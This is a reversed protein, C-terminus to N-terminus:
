LLPVHYLLSSTQYYDGWDEPCLVPWAKTCSGLNTWSFLGNQQIASFKKGSADARQRLYCNQAVCTLRFHVKQGRSGHNQVFKQQCITQILVFFSLLVFKTADPYKKYSLFTWRQNVHTAWFRRQKFERLLTKRLLDRFPCCPLNKSTLPYFHVNSALTSRECLIIKM